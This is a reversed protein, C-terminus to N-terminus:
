SLKSEFCFNRKCFIKLIYKVRHVFLARLYMYHIYYVHVYMTRICTYVYLTITNYAYVYCRTPTTTKQREKMEAKNGDMKEPGGM